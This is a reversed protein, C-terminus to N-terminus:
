VPQVESAPCGNGAGSRGIRARGGRVSCARRVDGLPHQVGRWLRCMHARTARRMSRRNPPRYGRRGHWELRRGRQQGIADRHHRARRDSDAFGSCERKCVEARM